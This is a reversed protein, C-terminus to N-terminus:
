HANGPSWANVQVNGKSTVFRDGNFYYWQNAGSEPCASGNYSALAQSLSTGVGSVYGIAWGMREYDYWIAHDISTISSNRKKVWYTGTGNISLSYLGSQSSQDDFARGKM